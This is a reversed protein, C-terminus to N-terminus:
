KTLAVYQPSNGAAFVTPTSLAGTARDIAYLSLADAAQDATYAFRGTRDISIATPALGGAPFSGAPSPVGTRLDIAFVNISQANTNAVYVFRGTPDIALGRGADITNVSAVQTLQGSQPDIAYAFLKSIGAGTAAVYAFRGSAEIAVNVAQHGPPLAAQQVRPGLAGSLPDVALVDVTGGARAVYAFRGAEDLAMWRDGNGSFPFDGLATLQGTAADIAHQRIGSQGLVYAYRGKADIAVFRPFVSTAAQGIAVLAGTTQDISFMSVTNSNLDATYAFRGSPDVAMHEPTSGTPAFVGASLQGVAGVQYATANNSSENPAFAFRTAGPETCRVEVPALAAARVTGFPAYVVCVQLATPQTKVTVGYDAGVAVPTAFDFSGDANVALDDGANNQLVLDPSALGTVKVRVRQADTACVVAIDGVDAEGVTGAGRNVTCTQWPNAPQQKVTVAYATGQTRRDAFVFPGDAAIALDASGAQQLVLGSGALGSVSGGVTYTAPEPGPPTPPPPTGGGDAPPPPFFVFGGGGGGGGGCSAVAIPLLLLLAARRLGAFAHRVRPSFTAPM